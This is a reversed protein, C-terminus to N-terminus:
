QIFIVINQFYSGAVLLPALKAATETNAPGADCASGTADM